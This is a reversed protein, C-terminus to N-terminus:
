FKMLVQYSLKLLASQHLDIKHSDELFPIPFLMKITCHM